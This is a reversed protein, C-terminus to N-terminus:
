LAVGDLRRLAWLMAETASILPKTANAHLTAGFHVSRTITCALYIGDASSRNGTLIGPILDDLTLQGIDAGGDYGLCTSAAVALGQSEAWQVEFDHRAQGYPTFIFLNQWRNETCYQIIAGPATIIPGDMAQQLAQRGVQSFAGYARAYFVADWEKHPEVLTELTDLLQKREEDSEGHGELFPMALDVWDIAPCASSLDRFLRQNESSRLILVRAM